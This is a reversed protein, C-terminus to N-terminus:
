EGTLSSEINKIDKDLDDVEQQLRTARGANPNAVIAAKNADRRDEKSKKISSIAEYEGARNLNKIQSNTASHGHKTVDKNSMKTIDKASFQGFTEKIEDAMVAGGCIFSKELNGSLKAANARFKTDRRKDEDSAGAYANNANTSSLNYGITNAMCGEALEKRQKEPMRNMGSKRQDSDQSEYWIKATTADDLDQVEHAKGDRILDAMKDKMVQEKAEEKSYGDNIYKEADKKGENTMAAFGLNKNTIEDMDKKGLAPEAGEFHKKYKLTGDDNKDGLKGQAAAAKLLLAKDETTGGYGLVGNAKSELITLDINKLDGMSMEMKQLKEQRKKEVGAKGRLAAGKLGPVKGMVGYGGRKISDAGRSLAKNRNVVGGGAKRGLGGALKVGAYTGMAIKGIGATGGIVKNAGAVGLRQTIPIVALLMFLAISHPIMIVALDKVADFGTNTVPLPTFNSVMENAMTASLYVFFMFIPGILSYKVLESWWESTYKSMSPLVISLFAIPSLIILFVFAVLRILLFIALMIYVFGLALSYTLAFAVLIVQDLSAQFGANNIQANFQDVISTLSGGGGQFTGMWSMIEYMFVQGFDIVLKAIVASFNILFLSLVLKPLLNKANFTSSRLITGFAIILLFFLYFTNCMDRVTKWGTDVTSSVLVGPNTLDGMYLRPDLAVDICWAGFKVLVISLMLGINLVAFLIAYIFNLLTDIASTLIYGLSDAIVKSGINVISAQAEYVPVSVSMVVFLVVITISLFHKKQFKKNKQFFKSFSNVFSRFNESM